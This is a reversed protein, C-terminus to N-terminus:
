GTVGGPAVPRQWPVGLQGSEGLSILLEVLDARRWGKAVEERLARYARAPTWAPKYPRISTLADYVDVVGVIQALLPVDEGKLGDPYGTGDLREHHHRVVSRVRRMSRLSGLLEDGVVTHRKIVDYEEDTLPGPKRLVADPVAVKGIDHLHGGRHLAALDDEPLGLGAGLTVAFKALRECHGETNPDRAEITRALSMIVSEASDLDDTYRKLRVLSKVRARLEAVDVPKALFDDAGAEIAGIRDEASSFGTMLVIPMLRTAPDHKLQRCVDIGDRGPMRIDMLVLDPRERQVVLLAEPGSFATLITYGDKALAQELMLVNTKLDDVVLVTGAALAPAPTSPTESPM